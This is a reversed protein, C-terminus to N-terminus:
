AQALGELKREPWAESALRRDDVLVVMEDLVEGVREVPSDTTRLAWPWGQIASPTARPTAPCCSSWAGGSRSASGAPGAVLRKGAIPWQAGLDAVSQGPRHTSRRRLPRRWPSHPLTQAPGHCQGTPRRAGSSAHAPPGWPRPWPGAPAGTAAEHPQLVVSSPRAAPRGRPHEGRRPPARRRRLGRTRGFHAPEDGGLRVPSYEHVETCLLALM